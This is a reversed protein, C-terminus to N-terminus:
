GHGDAADDGPTTGSAVCQPVLMSLTGDSRSAFRHIYFHTSPSMVPSPASVLRTEGCIGIWDIHRHGHLAVVRQGLPRLQRVFWSGNVLATGIRAALTSGAKPYEMLHHHLGIIWRADPFQRTAAVLDRTQATSVLGLANTFSFHTEANSNLLVVGLGGPLNPPLIMPFLDKWLRALKMSLRFNGTDAFRQIDDRHPAIADALTVSFRRTERDMVLVRDGQVAVLASLMRMERLAKGTESPLELRAPNARDVVNLDHNGPLMLTRVVLDPYDGLAELFAAWETQRGGDTMDGSLVVLDVPDQAHAASLRALAQVVRDNGQPGARGSELRFEYRGGVAHLDSLHAIRWIPGGSPEPDFDPLDRPQDMSADALSWFLSAAALFLGVIAVSNALMPLVLRQPFRMDAVNGIWRTSPWVLYVALLAIGCLLIGAAATSVASLRARTRASVDRPLLREGVHRLGERFIVYGPQVVLSTLSWFSSETARFLPRGGLWAAVLAVVLTVLPVVEFVLDATRRPLLGLWATALLPAVGLLLAPLIIMTLVALALKVLNMEVLLSGTMALLSHHRPSAADDQIDGARPDILLKEGNWDQLV